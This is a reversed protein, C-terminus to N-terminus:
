PPGHVWPGGMFYAGTAIVVNVGEHNMGLEEKERKGEDEGEEQRRWKGGMGPKKDERAM